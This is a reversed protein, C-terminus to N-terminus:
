RDRCENFCVEGGHVVLNVEAGPFHVNKPSHINESFTCEPSFTCKPPFTCEPRGCICLHRAQSAENWWLEVPAFCPFIYMESLFTCKPFIYMEPFHVNQPFTCEMACHFACKPLNGSPLWFSRGVPLHSVRWFTCEPAFQVNRLSIYMGPSIYMGSLVCLELTCIQRWNLNNNCRPHTSCM